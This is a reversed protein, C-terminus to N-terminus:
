RKLRMMSVPASANAPPISFVYVSGSDTGRDDDWPAGILATQGDASLAVSGGFKDWEAGDEATLKRPQSWIGNENKVFLYAAGSNSAKDDNGSAGILATRGDASLSVNGGFWDDKEDDNEPQSAILTAQQSWAGDAGKTCLYAEGGAYSSHRPFLAGILATQGDVSLSVSCGFGKYREIGKIITKVQQHWTGDAGKTFIYASGPYYPTHNQELYIGVAGILATQGDASLSVSCGFKDGKTRENPVLNVQQSWIGDAGRVFIYASGPKYESMDSTMWPHECAGILSTQGDASLSVSWGFSHWSDVDQPPFLAQQKWNGTEDKTFIYAAGKGMGKDFALPSGILATSGDASLSVSHAFFGLMDPEPEPKFKAQQKWSGDAEKVFIYAVDPHTGFDPAGILATNGDASLAISEGFSSNEGEKGLLKIFAAPDNDASDPSATLREAVSRLRNMSRRM